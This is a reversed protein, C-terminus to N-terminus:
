LYYISCYYCVCFVINNYLDPLPKCICSGSLLIVSTFFTGPSQRHGGCLERSKKNKWVTNVSKSALHEPRSTRNSNFRMPM